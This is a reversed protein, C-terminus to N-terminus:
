AGVYVDVAANSDAKGADLFGFSDFTFAVEMVAFGGVPTVHGSGALGNGATVTVSAQLPIVADATLPMLGSSAVMWTVIGVCTLWTRIISMHQDKGSRDRPMSSM